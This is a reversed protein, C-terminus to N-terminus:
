AQETVSWMAARGTEQALRIPLVRVMRGSEQSLVGTGFIGGRIPSSSGGNPCNCSAGGKGGFIGAGGSLTGVAGAGLGVGASAGGSVGFGWTGTPDIYQLPDNWVYAYLNEDGGLFELPDESLFRGVSPGYYRARNFLGSETDFERGAYRFFNTLSGSSNTTNGFSDYAYTQALTGTSSSL